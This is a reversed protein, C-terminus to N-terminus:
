QLLLQGVKAHGQGLLRAVESERDLIIQREQSLIANLVAIEREKEIIEKEQTLQVHAVIDQEQQIARRLGAIEHDKQKLIKVMEEENMQRSKPRSQKANDFEIKLKILEEEIQKNAEQEDIIKQQLVNITQDKETVLDSSQVAEAECAKSTEVEIKLRNVESEYQDLATTNERLTEDKSDAMEQLCKIDMDKQQNQVKMVLIEKQLSENKSEIQEQARVDQKIKEINEQLSAERADLNKTLEKQIMEVALKQEKKLEDVEANKKEVIIMLEEMKSKLAENAAILLEMERNAEAIDERDESEKTDLKKEELAVRLEFIESEKQDIITQMEKEVENIEENKEELTQQFMQEIDHKTDSVEESEKRLFDDKARLAKQLSIVQL